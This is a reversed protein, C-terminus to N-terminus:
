LEGEQEALYRELSVMLANEGPRVGMSIKLPSGDDATAETYPRTPAIETSYPTDKTLGGIVVDLQGDRMARALEGESGITWAIQAEISEAYGTVLDVESGSVGGDEAVETWPPNETLGVRLTGGSARALTGQADRPIAGCGSATGALLGAALLAPLARRPIGHGSGRGRVALAERPDHPDTWSSTM